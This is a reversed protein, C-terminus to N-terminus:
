LVNRILNAIMNILVYVQEENPTELTRHLKFGRLTAMDTKDQKKDTNISPPGKPFRLVNKPVDRANESREVPSCRRPEPTRIRIDEPSRSKSGNRASNQATKSSNVGLAQKLASSALRTSESGRKSRQNGNKRNSNREGNQDIRDKGQNRRNNRIMNQAQRFKNNIVPGKFVKGSHFLFDGHIIYHSNLGYFCM